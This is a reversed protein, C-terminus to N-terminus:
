RSLWSAARTPWARFRFQRRSSRALGPASPAKVSPGATPTNRRCHSIRIPTRQEAAVGIVGCGLAVESGVGSQPYGRSAVTFLRKGRVDLMLLMAHRMGLHTDLGELVQNFLAVLSEAQAICDSIARVARLRNYPASPRQGTGALVCEINLVRYVDSGRLRFVGAMGTHSAIGALRAKMSEFVPGSSETHSYELDLHYRAGTKPSILAAAARPNSLINERSKSFFQYSLALHRADVLHAHSAYTVNPTGNVACTALTLPIVGELCDRIEDDLLSAM